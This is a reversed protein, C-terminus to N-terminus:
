LVRRVEQLEQDLSNSSQIQTANSGSQTDEEGNTKRESENMTTRRYSQFQRWDQYNRQWLVPRPSIRLKYRNTRRICQSLIM